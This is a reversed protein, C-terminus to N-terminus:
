IGCCLYNIQTRLMVILLRVSETFYLKHQQWVDVFTAVKLYRQWALVSQLFVNEM